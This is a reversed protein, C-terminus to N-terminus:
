TNSLEHRHYRWLETWEVKGYVRENSPISRRVAENGFTAFASRLDNFVMDWCDDNCDMYRHSVVYFSRTSVMYNSAIGYPFEVRNLRVSEMGYSDNAIALTFINVRLNGSVM